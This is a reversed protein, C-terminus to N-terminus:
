GSSAMTLSPFLLTALLSWTLIWLLIYTFLGGRYSYSAENLSSIAARLCRKVFYYSAVYLATAILIPIFSSVIGHSQMTLLSPNVLASTIGAVIGFLVRAVYIKTGPRM